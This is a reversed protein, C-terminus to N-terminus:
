YEGVMDLPVIGRSTAISQQRRLAGFGPTERQDPNILQSEQKVEQPSNASRGLDVDFEILIM